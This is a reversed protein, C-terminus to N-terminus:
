RGAHNKKAKRVWCLRLVPTDVYTTPPGTQEIYHKIQELSVKDQRRPFFALKLVYCRGGQVIEDGM